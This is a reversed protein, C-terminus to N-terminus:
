SEFPRETVAIISGHVSIVRRVDTITIVSKLPFLSSSQHSESGGAFLTNEADFRKHAPEKIIKQYEEAEDYHCGSRPALRDQEDRDRYADCYIVILIGRHEGSRDAAKQYINAAILKEAIVCHYKCDGAQHCGQQKFQIQFTFEYVIHSYSGGSSKNLAPEVIFEIVLYPFIVVNFPYKCVNRHSYPAISHDRGHEDEENYAEDVAEQHRFGVQSDLFSDGGTVM